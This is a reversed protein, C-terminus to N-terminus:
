EDKEKRSCSFRFIKNINKNIRLNNRLSLECIKTQM